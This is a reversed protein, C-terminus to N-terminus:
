IVHFCQYLFCVKIYFRISLSRCTVVLGPLLSLSVNREAHKCSLNTLEEWLPRIESKLDILEGAMPKLDIALDRLRGSSSTYKNTGSTPWHLMLATILASFNAEDSGASTKLESSVFMLADPWNFSWCLCFLVCLNHLYDAKVVSM